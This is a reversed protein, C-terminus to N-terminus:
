WHTCSVHKSCIFCSFCLKPIRRGNSKEVFFDWRKSNLSAKPTKIMLSWNFIILLSERICHFLSDVSLLDHSRKLSPRELRFWTKWIALHGLIVPLLTDFRCSRRQRQEQTKKKDGLNDLQSHKWVFFLKVGELLSWIESSGWVMEWTIIWWGPYYLSHDLFLLWRYNLYPILM